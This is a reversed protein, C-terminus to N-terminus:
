RDNETLLFTKLIKLRLDIKSFQDFDAWQGINIHGVILMDKTYYALEPMDTVDTKFVVSDSELKSLM